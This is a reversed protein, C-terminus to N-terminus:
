CDQMIRAAETTSFVLNFALSGQTTVLASLLIM